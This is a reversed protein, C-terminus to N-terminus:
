ESDTTTPALSVAPQSAAVPPPREDTPLLQCLRAAIPVITYGPYRGPDSLTTGPSLRAAPVLFPEPLRRIQEWNLLRFEPYFRRLVRLQDRTCIRHEDMQRVEDPELELGYFLGALDPAAFRLAALDDNEEILVPQNAAYTRIAQVLKSTRQDRARYKKWLVLLVFTGAAFVVGCLALVLWDPLQAGAWAVVPAIAAVTPFVYRMETLPQIALSLGAVILPMLVLAALGFLIGLDGNTELPKLYGGAVGVLFVTTLVALVLCSAWWPGPLLVKRVFAVVAPLDTEKLWYVPYAHNQRWLFPLWALFTLPGLSVAAAVTWPWPDRLHPLLFGGVLLVLSLCGMSHLYCVLLSCLGVAALLWPSFPAAWAQALFYAFWLLAALWLSYMRAEFAYRLTLPHSWVAVTAAVAVLPSVVERLSLYLGLLGLLLTGLAISRLVPLGFGGVARYLLSLLLHYGPPNTDLGAVIGRLFHAPSPDSVVRLIMQEDFWPNRRFLSGARGLLLQGLIIGVLLILAGGEGVM